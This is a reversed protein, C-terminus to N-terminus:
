GKVAPIMEWFVNFKQPNNYETEIVFKLGLEKSVRVLVNHYFVLGNSVSGWTEIMHMKDLQLYKTGRKQMADVIARTYSEVLDM